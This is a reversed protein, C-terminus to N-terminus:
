LPLFYTQKFMFSSILHILSRAQTLIKLFFYTILLRCQLMRLLILLNLTFTWSPLQGMHFLLVGGCFHIHHFIPPKPLFHSFPKCNDKEVLVCLLFPCFHSPKLEPYSSSPLFHMFINNGICSIVHFWSILRCTGTYCSSEM